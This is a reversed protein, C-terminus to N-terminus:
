PGSDLNGPRNLAKFRTANSRKALTVEVQYTQLVTPEEGQVALTRMETAGYGPYRILLSEGAGAMSRCEVYSSIHETCRRCPGEFQKGYADIISHDDDVGIIRNAPSRELRM